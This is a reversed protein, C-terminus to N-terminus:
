HIVCRLTESLDELCAQIGQGEFDILTMVGALDNISVTCTFSLM